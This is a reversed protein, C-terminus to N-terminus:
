VLVLNPKLICVAKKGHALSHQPTQQGVLFNEPKGRELLWALFNEPKGRELLWVNVIECETNSFDSDGNFKALYRAARLKEFLSEKTSGDIQGIM